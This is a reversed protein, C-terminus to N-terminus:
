KGKKMARGKADASTKKMARGAMDSAAKKKVAGGKKMGTAAMGASNATASKAKEAVRSIVKGFMGRPRSTTGADGSKGKAKALMAKGVNKFAM